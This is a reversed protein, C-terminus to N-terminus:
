ALALLSAIYTKSAPISLEPGAGLPLVLEAAHALRSDPDNTVALTVAGQRAAEEIVAIVDPAAGSQSIGIVCQGELTPPSGYTTFLSPAALAVMMRNRAGFLYKAYLAAHDSSGRAAIIFGRPKSARLRDAISAVAGRSEALMRSALLPQEGIEDRFRSM